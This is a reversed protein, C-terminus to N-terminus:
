FGLVTTQGLETYGSVGLTWPFTAETPELFWSGRAAKGKEWTRSIGGIQTLREIMPGGGKPRKRVTLADWPARVLLDTLATDHHGTVALERFRVRPAAYRNKYGSARDAAELASIRRQPVDLAREGYVTKSSLDIAKQTAGDRDIVSIVNRIEARYNAPVLRDYPVETGAAHATPSDGYTRSSVIFTPNLKYSRGLFRVAGDGRMFIMGDEDDALSLLYDLANGSPMHKGITTIGAVLDRWGSYSTLGAGPWSVVDLFRAVQEHSLGSRFADFGAGFFANARGISLAKNFIALYGMTPTYRTATGAQDRGVYVHFTSSAPSAGFSGSSGGYYPLQVAVGGVNIFARAVNGQRVIMVQQFGSYADVNWAVGQITGSGDTHELMLIKPSGYLTAGKGTRLRYASGVDVIYVPGNGAPPGTPFGNFWGLMTLDGTLNLAAPTGADGYMTGDFTPTQPGTSYPGTSTSGTWSNWTLDAGASGFDEAVSAGEDMKWYAVPDDELILDSLPKLTIGAFLGFADVCPVEVVDNDWDLPFDEIFGNWVDYTVAAFTERHRVPRSPKVNPSYPGSTNTPDYKRHDNRLVLIMTGTEPRVLENQRGVADKAGM